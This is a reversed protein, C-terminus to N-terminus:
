KEDDDKNDSNKAKNDIIKIKEDETKIDEINKNEEKENNKIEEIKNDEIIENEGKVNVEEVKKNIKNDNDKKKDKEINNDDDNDTKINKYPTKKQKISKSRSEIIMKENQKTMTLTRPRGENINDISSDEEEEDDNIINNKKNQFEEEYEKFYKEDEENEEPPTTSKINEYIAQAMSEEIEYKKIFSDVVKTIDKKDIKFEIMNNSYSLVQSFGINSLRSKIDEQTENIVNNKKNVEENKAIENQIMHEIIGEWFDLSQLWKYNKIYEFLYIKKIENKNKPNKKEHYFTQSLIICNKASEFDKTKQSEDLINHIIDSLDKILTESRQFRGKTRQKSLTVLFYSKYFPEKLLVILEKKEKPNFSIGPGIKFIQTCLFRLRFKKEEEEMNLDKRIDRFNQHLTSIVQYNIDLAELEKKEIGAFNKTLDAEPSYPIFPIPGDGKLDTKNREIFNNMDQQININKFRYDLADMSLLISTFMKKVMPIFYSIICNLKLYFDTNIIQYFKLLERQKNIENERAKNTDELLKYYKDELNKTSTISLKMREEYKAADEESNLTQYKSQIMNFINSECIKASAEFEKRVKELNIKSNNYLNKSKNYQSYLEKEETYKDDITKIIPNIISKKMHNSCEKFEDVHSKLAQKLNTLTLDITNDKDNQDVIDANKHKINDISKSFDNLAQRYKTIIESFINLNSHEKLTKEHLFDIKGWLKQEYQEAM